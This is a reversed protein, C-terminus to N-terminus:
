AEVPTAGAAEEEAAPDPIGINISIRTGDGTRKRILDAAEVLLPILWSEYEGDVEVAAAVHVHVHKPYSRKREDGNTM